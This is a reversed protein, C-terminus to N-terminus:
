TEREQKPVISRSRTMHIPSSFEERATWIPTEALQDRWERTVTVQMSFFIKRALKM